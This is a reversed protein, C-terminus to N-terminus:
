LLSQLVREVIETQRNLGLEARARAAAMSGFHAADDPHELLRRISAALTEANGPPVKIGCDGLLEPMAGIDSIVVARGCAMAEPVVRGYQEKWISPAVVIDAANMLGPMESHNAHFQVTRTAIGGVRLSDLLKTVYVDSGENVDDLLFQWELDKLRSLADILIHVGKNPVLRGFYAITPASLRWRRRVDERAAPDFPRFLAPDFGLPIKTVRGTFGLSQMAAVGDSCISFVHDVYRRAFLSWARSRLSRLAPKLAGRAIAGVTSPLDNENSLCVLRGGQRHALRGLEWAMRSDPENELFVIRPQLKRVLGALGDLTWFRTRNGRPPLMHVPPDFAAQPEVAPGRWPLKDPIVIEVKWGRRALARYLGRNVGLIPAHGVALIDIMAERNRPV